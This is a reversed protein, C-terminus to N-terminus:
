YHDELCKLASLLNLHKSCCVPSCFSSLFSSRARVAASLTSTVAASAISLFLDVLLGFIRHPLLCAKVLGEQEGVQTVVKRSVM